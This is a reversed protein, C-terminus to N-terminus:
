VTISQPAYSKPDFFYAHDPHGADVDRNLLFSKFAPLEACLKRYLHPDDQDIPPLHQVWFRGATYDDYIRDEENTACVFWTHVRMTQRVQYMERVRVVPNTLREIMKKIVLLSLFGGDVCVVPKAAWGNYRSLLEDSQVLTAEDDFLSELMWLLTTKGLAMRNGTLCLVPLSHQKKQLKLALCDLFLEYRGTGPKGKSTFKFLHQLFAEIVPWSTQDKM